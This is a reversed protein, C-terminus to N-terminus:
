SLKLTSMLWTDHSIIELANRTPTPTQPSYIHENQTQTHTHTHTLTKRHIFTHTYKINSALSVENAKFAVKSDMKIRQLYFHKRIEFTFYLFWFTLDLTRIFFHVKSNMTNNLIRNNCNHNNHYLHQQQCYFNFFFSHFLLFM